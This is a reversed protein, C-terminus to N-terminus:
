GRKAAPPAVQCALLNAAREKLVLAEEPDDDTEAMDRIRQVIANLLAPSRAAVRRAVACDADNELQMREKENAAVKTPRPSSASDPTMPGESDLRHGLVIHAQEHLLAFIALEQPIRQMLIPNFRVYSESSDRVGQAVRQLSPDAVLGIRWGAETAQSAQLPSTSLALAGGLVGLVIHKCQMNGEQRELLAVGM